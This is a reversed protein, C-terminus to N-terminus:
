ARGTRYGIEYETLYSDRKQMSVRHRSTGTINGVGYLGGSVGPCKYAVAVGERYVVSLFVRYRDRFVGGFCWAVM